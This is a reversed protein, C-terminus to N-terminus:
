GPSTDCPRGTIGGPTKDAHWTRAYLGSSGGTAEMVVLAKTLQGAHAKIFHKIGDPDNSFQTVKTSGQYVAVDFWEKSVDLGFSHIYSMPKGQAKSQTRALVREVM